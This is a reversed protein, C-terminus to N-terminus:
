AWIGGGAMVRARRESGASPNGVSATERNLAAERDSDEQKLADFYVVDLVRSVSELREIIEDFRMGVVSAKLSEIKHIAVAINGKNTM